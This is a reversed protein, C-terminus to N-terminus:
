SKSNGLEGVDVLTEFYEKHHKAPEDKEKDACICYCFSLIGAHHRAKNMERILGLCQFERILIRHTRVPKYWKYIFNM